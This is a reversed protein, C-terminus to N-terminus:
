MPPDTPAGADPLAETTTGLEVAEGQPPEPPAPAIAPAPELLGLDALARDRTVDDIVKGRWMVRVLRAAKRDLDPSRAAPTRRKPNPLAVALRAAQAPTLQNASSGYWRRAAAEAGFVGDGWEVVNLYLELIREKSLQGDLRHAILLERLKRLPDKSPSLYLNKALQQTITSGGVALRRKQWNKEAAKEMADWDVGQHNWFRADESLVVAEQLYPSVEALSRWTWRLVFRRGAERAEQRRLDIFATSRPPRAALPRVDPLSQWLVAGGLLLGGVLVGAVM